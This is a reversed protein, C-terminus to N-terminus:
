MCGAEPTRPTSPGDVTELTDGDFLRASEDDTGSVDESAMPMDIRGRATHLGAGLQVEVNSRFLFGNRDGNVCTQHGAVSLIGVIVLGIIM